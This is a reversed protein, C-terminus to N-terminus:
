LPRNDGWRGPLFMTAMRAPSRVGEEQMAADAQAVYRDGKEGGLLCGLQRRACWMYLQMETAAAGEIAVRLAATAERANGEANATAARVM